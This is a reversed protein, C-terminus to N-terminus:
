LEVLEGLTLFLIAKRIPLDESKFLNAYRELQNMHQQATADFDPHEGLDTL